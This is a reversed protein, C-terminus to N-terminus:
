FLRHLECEISWKSLSRNVDLLVDDEKRLTRIHDMYDSTINNFSEYYEAMKRPMMIFKSM